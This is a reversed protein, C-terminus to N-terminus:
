RENDEEALAGVVGVIISSVALWGLSYKVTETIAYIAVSIGVTFVAAILKPGIEKQM